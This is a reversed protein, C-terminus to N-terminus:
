ASRDSQPSIVPALSEVLDSEGTFMYARGGRSVWDRVNERSNDILLAEERKLGCNVRSIAVDCLDAKRDCKEQWSTVIIEFLKDLSYHPVVVDSFIDPNITVLVQPIECRKVVRTVKDFFRIQRSCNKMHSLVVSPSVNGREALIEAVQRSTIEGINWARSIAVDHMSDRYLKPWDAVEEMSQQMWREDVITNGFDWLVLSIGM